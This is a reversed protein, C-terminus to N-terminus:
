TKQTRRAQLLRPLGAYDRHVIVKDFTGMDNIASVVFKEQDYGIEMLLTGGPVLLRVSESIIRGLEDRGSEGGFLAIEPEAALEPQLTSQSRKAVYPPNAAVLHYQARNGLAYSWDSNLFSVQGEVKHLQANSKAVKLADISRDVALVTVQPHELALTIAIVGSGTGLDIVQIKKDRGLAHLALSAKDILLETEPRPILVSPTVFFKRGYFEQEGLIYALPERTLRRSLVQDVASVVNIAAQQKGDLFIDARKCNLVHRLLIVTETDPDPIEAASLRRVADHYLALITTM